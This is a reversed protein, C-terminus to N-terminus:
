KEPYGTYRKSLISIQNKVFLPKARLACKRDKVSFPKQLEIIVGDRMKNQVSCVRWLGNKEAQKGEYGTIEVLSYKRLFLIRKGKHKKKLEQIRKFVSHHPIVYVEGGVYALAYNENIEKVSGTQQLKSKGTPNIGVYKLANMAKEKGKGENLIVQANEGEGEIRIVSQPNENLKAGSMDSPIHTFVRKQGLATRIQEKFEKSLDCLRLSNEGELKYHRVSSTEQLEEKQSDSLHRQLLLRGRDKRLPYPIMCPILGLVLADLAHHMHTLGRVIKKDHYDSIEPCVSSLCGTLKWSKRVASTMAGTITEITVNPLKKRAVHSAIKMLHSSQTMMGDTMGLNNDKAKNKPMKDILFLRKRTKRRREDDKSGGKTKLADVFAEYEGISQISYSQSPVNEGQREKIFQYGTRAGKMRNVEPFTLVLAAMSDTQRASYPVIHDLEMNDMDVVGYEKGTYPCRWNLDMAVKCKRILKGTIQIKNSPHEKNYKELCKVADGHSKYRIGLEQEIEKNTKGSFEKLERGVEICLRSVNKPNGKAFEKIMDNLLRSFILMRHRVLHNNTMEEVRRQDQAKQVASEPDLLAYLCGDQEKEEGEPHESSCKPRTPDEGRLVEEVVQEMVKRTYPARGSAIEKVEVSDDWTKKKEQLCKELASVCTIEGCKILFEKVILPNVKRGRRLRSLMVKQVSSPLVNNLGFKNFAKLSPDLVLAKKSDPHLSFYNSVNTEQPSLYESIIREITKVELFGEKEAKEMLIQRIKAPLPNGDARLNALIRALRYRYFERCDAQPVKAGKDAIHVAMKESDSSKEEGHGKLVSEYLNAWTIPCNAIIRNDFRPMLQGFLLGGVYRKPLLIGCRELDAFVEKKETRMDDQYLLADMMTEEMGSLRLIKTVEAHVMERPFAANCEKYSATGESIEPADQDVDLGMYACVTEAMTDVGHKKALDRAIAEKQTDEKESDSSWGRNGDYGRNHAYWRLVHWVQLHTLKQKERLARAALHYPAMCGPTAVDEASLWGKQILYRGMREIRQRRSRINRRMRRYERRKLALCDDPPFLVTGCGLITPNQGDQENKSLAAWGISAYGIDFSFLLESMKKISTERM